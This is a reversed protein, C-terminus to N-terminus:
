VQGSVSGVRWVMWTQRTSRVLSVSSGVLKLLLQIFILKIVSLIHAHQGLFQAYEPKDYYYMGDYSIVTSVLGDPGRGYSGEESDLSYPIVSDLAGHFDIINTRYRPLPGFGLFPVGSVIGFSAFKFSSYSALYYSFQFLNHINPM